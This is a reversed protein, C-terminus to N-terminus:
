RRCAMYRGFRADIKQIHTKIWDNLFTLVELSLHKEGDCHAMYMETVRKSFYDHEKVHDEKGPFSNQEMLREEAAFHYIAYDILEHFLAAIDSSPSKAGFGDYTKNLLSFLHQHHEDCLPVGILLGEDWQLIPM